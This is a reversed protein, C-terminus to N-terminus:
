NILFNELIIIKSIKVGFFELNEGNHFYKRPDTINRIMKFQYSSILLIM